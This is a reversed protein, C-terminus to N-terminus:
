QLGGGVVRGFGGRSGTGRLMLELRRPSRRRWHWPRSVAPAVRTSDFGPGTGDACRRPPGKDLHVNLAIRGKRELVPPERRRKPRNNLPRHRGALAWCENHNM